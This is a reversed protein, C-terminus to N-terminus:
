QAAEAPADLDRADWGGGLARVLNVGAVLRRVRADVAARRADLAATQATTVELYNAVGATYRKDAHFLSREAAAAAAEDGQAEDALHRLAAIQDEVERYATLVSGRYVAVTEDYAARAQRNLAVIAGSEFIPVSLGPGVSWYRSPAQFLKSATTSEFGGTAGLSLVPFWAARAVGIQANAAAVRREAAAIDPRRELLRSPLDPAIAPPDAIGPAAALTLESPPRGILVAVAHELQARQLRVAARQARADNLLTEARNVDSEPAIGGEYRRRTLDLAREYAALGDDLLLLMADAGHLQFYQTALEAQLSLDLAALDGASAQVQRDAAAHANHLRGFLDIEWSLNLGAIFDNGTVRPNRSASGTTGSGDTDSGGDTAGTSAGSRGSGSFARTSPSARTASAEGTVTPGLDALARGAIARAQQYRAVGAALDPNADALQVQLADLQPDGFVRWWAGRPAADAPQAPQWRDAQEDAGTSTADGLEKFAANPPTKPPAYGPALSCAALVSSAVCLWVTACDRSFGSSRFRALTPAAEAAIGAGRRM